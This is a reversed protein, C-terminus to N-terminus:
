PRVPLSRRRRWAATFDRLEVGAATGLAWAPLKTMLVLVAVGSLAGALGHRASAFMAAYGALLVAHAVPLFTAALQLRWWLRAVDGGTPLLAFAMALPALAVLLWLTAWRAMALVALAVLLVVAVAAVVLVSLEAGASGSAAARLTQWLPDAASGFGAPIVADVLRNALQAEFAVLPLSVSATLLAGGLRLGVAERAALGLRTPGSALAGGSIAVLLGALAALCGLLVLWLHRLTPESGLAPTHLLYSALPQALRRTFDAVLARLLGALSDALGGGLLTPVGTFPNGPLPVPLPGVPTAIAPPIAPAILVAGGGGGAAAM